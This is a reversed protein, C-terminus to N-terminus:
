QRKWDLRPGANQNPLERRLLDVQQGEKWSVIERLKEYFGRDLQYNGLQNPSELNYDRRHSGPFHFSVTTPPVVIGPMRSSYYDDRRIRLEALIAKVDASDDILVTKYVGESVYSVSIAKARKLVAEQSVPLWGYQVVGFRLAFAGVFIVILLVFLTRPRM